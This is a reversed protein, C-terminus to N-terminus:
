FIYKANVDKKFREVRHKKNNSLLCVDYGIQKLRQFLEIARKDADAGHPVLTNDIDFIVGRYGENFYREFDISYTSEVWECPYLREFM